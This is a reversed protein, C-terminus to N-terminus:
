PNQGLDASIDFPSVIKEAIKSIEKPSHKHIVSRGSDKVIVTVNMRSGFLDKRISWPGSPIGHPVLDLECLRAHGNICHQRDKIFEKDFCTPSLDIISDLFDTTPYGKTEVRDQVKGQHFNPDIPHVSSKVRVLKEVLMHVHQMVLVVSRLCERWPATNCKMRQVANQLRRGVNQDQGYYWTVISKVKDHEEKCSNPSGVNVIRHIKVNIWDHPGLVMGDMVGM